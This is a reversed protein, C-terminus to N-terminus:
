RATASGFISDTKFGHHLGAFILVHEHLYYCFVVEIPDVEVPQLVCCRHGCRALLAATYLTAINSGILVHDFNVDSKALDCASEKINRATRLSSERHFKLNKKALFKQAIMLFVMLAVYFPNVNFFLVTIFVLLNSSVRKNLMYLIIIITTWPLFPEGVITEADVNEQLYHKVMQFRPDLVIGEWSGFKEHLERSLKREHALKRWDVTFSLEPFTKEIESNIVEWIDPGVEGLKVM